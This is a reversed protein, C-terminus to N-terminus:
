AKIRGAFGVKILSQLFAEIETEVTDPVAECNERIALVIDKLSHKGDLWKWVLVGVPKVGFAVNADPDFLLAWDDFEERLVVVPNAALFDVEGM